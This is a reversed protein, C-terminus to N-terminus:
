RSRRRAATVCRTSSRRAHLGSSARRDAVSPKEATSTHVRVTIEAGFRAELEAAVERLAAATSPAQSAELDVITGRSAALARRAALVLVHAEGFKRELRDAYAVIFALDQALGDHLDNAIRIREASVADQAARRGGYLRIAAVFLLGFALIRFPEALTVWNASPLPEAVAQLPAIALLYCAGAM